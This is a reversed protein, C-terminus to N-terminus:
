VRHRAAIGSVMVGYGIICGSVGLHSSRRWGLASVRRSASAVGVNLQRHRWAAAVIGINSAGVRHRAGGGLAILRWRAMSSLSALQRACLSLQRSASIINVGVYRSAISAHAAKASHLAKVGGRQARRHRRAASGSGRQNERHRRRRWRHHRRQAAPQHRNRAAGGSIIRQHSVGGIGGRHRAASSGGGGGIGIRHRYASASASTIIIRSSSASSAAKRRAIVNHALAAGRHRAGGIGLAAAAV